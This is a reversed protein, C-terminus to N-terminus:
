RWSRSSTCWRRMRPRARSTLVLMPLRMPVHLLKLMLVVLMLLVLLQMLMPLLVQADAPVGEFAHAAVHRLFRICLSRDALARVFCRCL